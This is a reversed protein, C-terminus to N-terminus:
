WRKPRSSGREERAKAINVTIARGSVARGNLSKIAAEADAQREMEVFGFGRSEGTLRDKILNVTTVPGHEGFLARVEDETVSWALNGIYINM